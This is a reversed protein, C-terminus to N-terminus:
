CKGTNPVICATITSIDNRAASKTPESIQYLIKTLRSSTHVEEEAILTLRKESHAHETNMELRQLTWKKKYMYM